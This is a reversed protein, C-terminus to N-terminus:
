EEEILSQHFNVLYLKETARTVATYLWRFYSSDLMDDNIYGQDVFVAPWQGGQAKHCTMAYAFKIQIANYYPDEKIAKMRAAKTPLDQYQAQTSHYLHEQAERGMAAAEAHIADVWLVAEFDPSDPYDVMRLSAHIFKFGHYSEEKGIRMIEMVDGNAIFPIREDDKLWHYNNKVAMVLDGTSVEEERFYVRDRIAQNFQNARKNSRSIVIAGEAGYNSFNSELEEQLEQGPLYVVDASPKLRIPLDLDDKERGIRSRITTALDLIGSDERQRMVETLEMAVGTLEFEGKLFTLNLAPSEESGVPPLQAGDGLLVLKCGVGSYVYQFLDLLLNGGGPSTYSEWGIMSAEDVIFVTHKHLNRAPVFRSGGSPTNEQYYIKKHITLAPHKSYQSMVKAARGTPALLVAGVRLNKLTEVLSRTTSTKGTGAYGKILLACNPKDSLLFRSIAYFLEEQSPTPAFPFNQILIDELEKVSM